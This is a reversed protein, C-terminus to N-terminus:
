EWQSISNVEDRRSDPNAVTVKKMLLICHFHHELFKLALIM